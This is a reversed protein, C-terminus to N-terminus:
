GLVALGKPDGSSVDGEGKKEEGRGDKGDRGTTGGEWGVGESLISSNRHREKAKEQGSFEFVNSRHHQFLSFIIEEWPDFYISTFKWAYPSM